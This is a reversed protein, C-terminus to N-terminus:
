SFSPPSRPCPTFVASLYPTWPAPHIERLSLFLLGQVPPPLAPPPPRRPSPLVCVCVCVVCVCVCTRARACDCGAEKTRPAEGKAGAERTRAEARPTSYVSSCHPVELRDARGVACTPVRPSSRSQVEGAVPGRHASAPKLGPKLIRAGSALIRVQRARAARRHANRRAVAAAAGPPPPTSQPPPPPLAM